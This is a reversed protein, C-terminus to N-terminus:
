AGRLGSRSPTRAAAVLRIEVARAQRLARVAAAATAGTTVVDDVLLVRAPPPRRAVFSPGRRRQALPQGTQPPGPLRRLLPFCPVAIRRAVARALLEGQDFGRRRRRAPSTPIWTVADTEWAIVLAAMGDALFRLSSRANRYKLRAV